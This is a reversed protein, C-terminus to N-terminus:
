LPGQLCIFITALAVFVLGISPLRDRSIEFEKRDQRKVIEPTLCTLALFM